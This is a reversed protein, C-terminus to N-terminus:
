ESNDEETEPEPLREPKKDNMIQAHARDYETGRDRREFWKM